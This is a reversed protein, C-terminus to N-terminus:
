VDILHQFDVAWLMEEQIYRQVAEDSMNDKLTRIKDGTLRLLEAIELDFESHTITEM